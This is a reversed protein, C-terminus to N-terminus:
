ARTQQKQAVFRILESALDTHTLLTQRAQEVTHQWRQQEIDDLALTAAHGADPADSSFGPRDNWRQHFRRLSPPAQLWDLFADLKAYHAGDQQPYIHWVLPKGAWLARVLSDEGRVFNLDCVRLLHDYDDQTLMPLYLFSLQGGKNWHPQRATKDMIIQSVAAGARGATVWLLTPRPADALTDLLHALGAPEYCFLSVWRSGHPLTAPRPAMVAVDALRAHWAVRDFDAQRALLQAERLVGGSGPVFGPYFFYKRLGRGPGTMVPSPLGHCRLAYPEASLYELNIWLGKRGGAGTWLAYAAIFEIDVECGFAEVLVDGPPLGSLVPPHTWPLVQVGAAGTPAMGSLASADDVWLRVTQGRQALNCALRWCVGIDGWNDIVHCFIDWRLPPFPLAANM